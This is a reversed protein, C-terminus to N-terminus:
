KKAKKNTKRPPKYVTEKRSIRPANRVRSDIVPKVLKVARNIYYGYDLDHWDFDKIENVVKVKEEKLIGIYRWGQKMVGKTVSPPMVKKLRVGEKSVFFRSIKQHRESSVTIPFEINFELLWKRGYAEQKDTLDMLKKSTSKIYEIGITELAHRDSMPLMRYWDPLNFKNETDGELLDVLAFLKSRGTIKTRSMFDHKNEHNKIFHSIDGGTTLYNVAAMAVIKESHNQHWDPKYGYEGKTKLKEGLEYTKEPIPIFDDDYEIAVEAVYNNVDRCYFNHYKAYELDMGTTASWENCISLYLDIDQNDISVDIGDTNIQIIQITPIQMMLTEALMALMLQGNITITMTMKPDYFPSFANNTDGFGAANLALKFMGNRPDSKPYSFRREKIEEFIDCFEEGLHEPYLRNHIVISPYYSKVDAAFISRTESNRVVGSPMAGHLGGTGFDFRFGRFNVHLNGINTEELPKANKRTSKKRVEEQDIYDTLLYKEGNVVRVTRGGRSVLTNDENILSDSNNVVGHDMLSGYPIDTFVGKTETIHRSKVWQLLTKFEPSEFKVVDFVLEGLNISSRPSQRTKREGGEKYYCIDPRIRSELQMIFYEKGMKMDNHSLMNRNYERGLEERAEIMPLSHRGFNATQNTDHNNYDCLVQMEPQTLFTGAPFPLEQISDAAMNFELMKLSTMKAKNDFHHMKFLDSQRIKQSNPWITSKFQEDRTMEFYAANRAYIMEVIAQAGINPDIDMVFDLIYWDYANNNYGMMIHDDNKLSNLTKLLQRFENKRPSVEYIRTKTPDDFRQISLTFINPYVEIDYPFYTFELARIREVMEPALIQTM